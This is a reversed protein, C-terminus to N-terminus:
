NASVNTEEKTLSVRALWAFSGFSLVDSSRVEPLTEFCQNALYIPRFANLNMMFVTNIRENILCM